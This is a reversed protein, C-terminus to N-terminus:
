EGQAQGTVSARRITAEIIERHGCEGKAFCEYKKIITATTGCMNAATCLRTLFPMWRAAMDISDLDDFATVVGDVIPHGGHLMVPSYFGDDAVTEIFKVIDLTAM